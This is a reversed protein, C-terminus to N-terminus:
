QSCELPYDHLSENKRCNKGKGGACGSECGTAGFGAFFLLEMFGLFLEVRVLRRCGRLPAGSAVLASIHARAPPVRSIGASGGSGTGCFQVLEFLFEAAQLVLEAIRLARVFLFSASLRSCLAAPFAAWHSAAPAAALLCSSLFLSLSFFIPPSPFAGSIGLGGSFFSSFFSSGSAFSRSRWAFILSHLARTFLASSILFRLQSDCNGKCDRM